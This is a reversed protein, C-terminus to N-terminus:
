DETTENRPFTVNMLAWENGALKKREEAALEDFKRAVYAIGKVRAEIKKSNEARMYATMALDNVEDEPLEEFSPPPPPGPSPSRPIILEAQLDEARHMKILKGSL